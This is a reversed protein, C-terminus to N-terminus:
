SEVEIDKAILQKFPGSGPPNNWTQEFSGPRHSSARVFVTTGKASVRIVSVDIIRYFKDEGLYLAKTAAVPDLLDGSHGAGHLMVKLDPPLKRHLREEANKLATNLADQFLKAFEDLTM